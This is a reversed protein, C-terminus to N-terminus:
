GSIEKRRRRRRVRRRPQQSEEQGRAKPAARMLVGIYLAAVIQTGPIHWSFDGLGVVALGLLGTYLPIRETNMAAHRIISALVLMLVVAGILGLELLWQLLDNHAYDWWGDIHGPQVTKFVAEYGGFGVGFLWHRLDIDMLMAAWVEFRLSDVSSTMALRDTIPALGYWTALLFAAFAALWVPWVVGGRLHGRYRTWLILATLMGILGAMAGLRSASGMLAAGVVAGSIVSGTVKLETPLRRLLPVDRVWWVSVVLPWTLSLYGAFLNRNSYTGQVFEISHREWIGLIHTTGSAHSVLGYLAQFLAMISIVLWLTGRFRPRLRGAIWAMVALAMFVAWGRAAAGPNPSWTSPQFEPHTWLAEPYPGFARALVDIPLIQLLTVTSIAAIVAWWGATMSRMPDDGPRTWLMSSWAIVAGIVLWLATATLTMPTRHGMMLPLTLILLAFAVTAQGQPSIFSKWGRSGSSRRRRRHSAPVDPSLIFDDSVMRQM